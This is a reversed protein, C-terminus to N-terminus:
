TKFLLTLIPPPFLLLLLFLDTARQYKKRYVSGTSAELLPSIPDCILRFIIRCSHLSHSSTSLVPQQSIPWSLDSRSLPTIFPAVLACSKPHLSVLNFICFSDCNHVLERHPNLFTSIRPHFWHKQSSILLEILAFLNRSFSFSFDIEPIHTQATQPIHLHFQCDATAYVPWVEPSPQSNSIWSDFWILYCIDIRYFISWGYYFTM